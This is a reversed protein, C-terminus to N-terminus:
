GMMTGYAMQADNDEIDFRQWGELNTSVLATTCSEQNPSEQKHISDLSKGAAQVCRKVIKILLAYVCMYICM